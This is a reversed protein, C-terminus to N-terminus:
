SIIKKTTNIKKITKKNQGSKQTEASIKNQINLQKYIQGSNPRKEKNSSVGRIIFPQKQVIKNSFSENKTLNKKSNKHAIQQNDLPKYQSIHIENLNVININGQANSNKNHQKNIKIQNHNNINQQSYPQNKHTQTQQQQEMKFLQTQQQQQQLIETLIKNNMINQPSKLADNTKKKIGTKQKQGLANNTIKNTRADTMIVPNLFLITVQRYKQHLQYPDIRQSSNYKTMQSILNAILKYENSKILLEPVVLEKQKQQNYINSYTLKDIKQGFFLEHFVIGLSWIDSYPELINKHIQEPPSYSYQINAQNQNSQSSYKLVQSVGFDSLYVRNKSDILINQPKINGHIIITNQQRQIENLAEIIQQGVYFKDSIKLSNKKLAQQLDWKQRKSVLYLNSTFENEQEIAYSEIKSLKASKLDNLVNMQCLLEFVFSKQGQGLKSNKDIKIQKLSIEQINRFEKIQYKLQDFTLLYSTINNDVNLDEFMQNVAIKSLECSLIMEGKQYQSNLNLSPRQIQGFNTLIFNENQQYQEQQLQNQFEQYQSDKLLQPYNKLGNVQVNYSEVTIEMPEGTFGSHKINQQRQQNIEENQNEEKLNLGDQNFPNSHSQLQNKQQISSIQQKISDSKDIFENNYNKSFFHENETNENKIQEYINNMQSGLMNSQTIHSFPLSNNLVENDQKKEETEKNSQKNQDKDISHQNQLYQQQDNEISQQDQNFSSMDLKEPIKSMGIGSQLFIKKTPSYIMKQQQQDAKLSEKNSWFNIEDSEKSTENISSLRRTQTQIIQQNYFNDYQQQQLQEAQYNDGQQKQGVNLKQINKSDYQLDNQNDIVYKQAWSQQETLRFQDYKQQYIISQLAIDQTQALTSTSELEDIIQALQVFDPREKRVPNLILELFQKVGQSYNQKVILLNEAIEKEEGQQLAYLIEPDVFSSSKFLNTKQSRILDAQQSLLQQGITNIAYQFEGIKYNGNVIFISRFNLCQHTIDNMQLYCGAKVVSNMLKRIESFEILQQKSKKYNFFEELNFEIDEMLICIRKNNFGYEDKSEITTKGKICLIQQSCYSQAMLHIDIENQIEEEKKQNRIDYVKLTFLKNKDQKANLKYFRGGNEQSFFPEPSKFEFLKLDFSM